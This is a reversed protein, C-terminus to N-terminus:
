GREAGRFVYMEDGKRPKLNRDGSRWWELGLDMDVRLACMTRVGAVHVDRELGRRGGNEKKGTVESRMVWTLRSLDKKGELKGRERGRERRCRKRASEKVM